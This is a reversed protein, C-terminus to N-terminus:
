RARLTGSQNSCFKATLNTADAEIRVGAMVGGIWVTVSTPVYGLGHAVPGWQMAPTGQTFTFGGDRSDLTEFNEQAITLPNDVFEIDKLINM